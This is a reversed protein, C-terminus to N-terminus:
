LDNEVEHNLEEDSDQDSPKVSMDFLQYRNDEVIEFDEFGPYMAIDDENMGMASKLYELDFKTLKQRLQQGEQVITKDLEYVEEAEPDTMDIVFNQQQVLKDSILPRNNNVREDQKAEIETKVDKNM